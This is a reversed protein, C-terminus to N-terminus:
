RHKVSVVQQGSIFHSKSPSPPPLPCRRRRRRQHPVVIHFRHRQVCMVDMYFMLSSSSFFLLQFWFHFLLDESANVM